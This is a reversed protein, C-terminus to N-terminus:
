STQLSVLFAILLPPLPPIALKISSTLMLQEVDAYLQEVLEKAGGRRM